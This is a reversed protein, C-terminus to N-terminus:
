RCLLIRGDLVGGRIFDVVGARHAAHQANELQRVSAHFDQHLPNGLAGYRFEHALPGRVPHLDIQQRLRGHLLLDREFDFGEHAVHALLRFFNQGQAALQGVVHGGNQLVDVIGALQGVQDGGVEPQLDLLGLRQEFDQVRDLPQLPDVVHERPFEFQRRHLGFNLGLDLVLYRLALPIVVQALLYPGDILFEPLVIVAGDFDFLVLFLDFLGLHRLLRVGFGQLLEFAEILHVRVRGLGRHDTGVQVPQHLQRPALGGLVDDVDALRPLQQVALVVTEVDTFSRM